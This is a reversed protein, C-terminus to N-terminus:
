VHSMTADFIFFDNLSLPRQADRVICLPVSGYFSAWQSFTSPPGLIYDCAALSYMDVVLHGDPDFHMLSSFVEPNQKQNSCILFGVQKGPFLAVTERMLKAYTESEYYYKGNLHEKYDGQRIHLGVLVDCKERARHVTEDVRKCLEPIPRFYDRIASAQRNFADPDRFSWGHVFLLWSKKAWRRFDESDLRFEDHIGVAVARWLPTNLHWKLVAHSIATCPKEIARMLWRGRRTVSKRPPFRCFVDQSTSTFHVAYDEFAPNAVTFGNEISSAIFHGMTFLRNGLQFWKQAIILM